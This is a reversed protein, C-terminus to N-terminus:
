VDDYEMNLLYKRLVKYWAHNQISLPRLIDYTM